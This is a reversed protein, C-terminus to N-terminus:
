TTMKTRLDGLPPANPGEEGSFLGLMAAWVAFLAACAFLAATAHKYRDQGAWHVVGVAAAFGLGALGLQATWQWADRSHWWLGTRFEPLAPEDCSEDCRYGFHVLAVAAALFAGVLVAMSAFGAARRAKDSGRNAERALTAFGVVGVVAALLVLM